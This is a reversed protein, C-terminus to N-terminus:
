VHEEIVRKQLEDLRRKEEKILPSGKAVDVIFKGTLVSRGILVPYVQTSRDALTFTAVIRRGGIIVPMKLRYRIQRHGMSSTVCVRDYHAFTVEHAHVEHEPSAFRVRLGAATETIATAWISSTKAGTDVRAYLESGGLTPFRVKEVRGILTKAKQTM